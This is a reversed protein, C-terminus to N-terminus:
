HWLLNPCALALASLTENVGAMCFASFQRSFISVANPVGRFLADGPTILALSFDVNPEFLSKLTWGAQTLRTATAFTPLASPVPTAVEARAQPARPAHNRARWSPLIRGPMPSFYRRGHLGTMENAMKDVIRGAARM